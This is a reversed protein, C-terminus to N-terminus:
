VRVLVFDRVTRSVPEIPHENLPCDNTSNISYGLNKCGRMRREGMRKLVPVAEDVYNYAVVEQKGPHLRHLRGVYQALTERWSIPMCSVAASARAGRTPTSRATRRCQMTVEIFYICRTSRCSSRSGDSARM